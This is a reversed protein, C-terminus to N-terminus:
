HKYKYPNLAEALYATSSLSSASKYKISSGSIGSDVSDIKSERKFFSFSFIFYIDYIIYKFLNKLYLKIIM